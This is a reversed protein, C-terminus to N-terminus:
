PTEGMKIQKANKFADDNLNVGLEKAIETNVYLDIKEAGQPHLEHIPKEQKLHRVMRGCQRGIAYQDFAIALFCGRVVSQPDSCFTLMNHKRAIKTLADMACVVTNDNSVYIAQVKGVLSATASPVDGSSSVSVCMVRFGLSQLKNKMNETATVSNAEGSNYIIGVTSAQPLLQKMKEAQQIYPVADFVGTIGPGGKDTTELLKAGVPDSVAAFIVPINMKQAVAYVSQTSPTTIPVIAFPKLSAFKQAIQAAIAISGQANQEVFTVDDDKLEDKIGRSIEDLSPHPAIQTIAVLSKSSTKEDKCSSLFISFLSLTIFPVSRLM